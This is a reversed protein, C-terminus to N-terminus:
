VRLRLRSLAVHGYPPLMRVIEDAGSKFQAENASAHVKAFTYKYTEPFANTKSLKDFDQNLGNVELTRKVEARQAM